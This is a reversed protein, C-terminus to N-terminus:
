LSLPLHLDHGLPQVQSGVEPQMDQWLAAIRVITDALEYVM